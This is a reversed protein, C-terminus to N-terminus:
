RTLMPIVLEVSKPRSSGGPTRSPLPRDMGGSGAEHSYTGGYALDLTSPHSYLLSASPRTYSNNPSTASSRSFPWIGSGAPSPPSPPRVNLSRLASMASTHYNLATDPSAPPSTSFHMSSPRSPSARPVIDRPESGALSETLIRRQNVYVSSYYSRVSKAQASSDQDVRRCADSCYLVLEDHTHFEKECIMCYQPFSEREDNDWIETDTERGGRGLKQAASPTHRRTMAPRKYQAPTATVAKRVDTTSAAATYPGSKRRQHPM